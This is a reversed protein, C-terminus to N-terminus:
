ILRSRDGLLHVSGCFYQRGCLFSRYACQKNFERHDSYFWAFFPFWRDMDMYMNIYKLSIRNNSSDRPIFSFTVMGGAETSNAISVQSNQWAVNGPYVFINGFPLSIPISNTSDSMSLTLASLDKNNPLEAIQYTVRILNSTIVTQQTSILQEEMVLYVSLSTFPRCLLLKSCGNCQM